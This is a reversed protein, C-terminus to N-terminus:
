IKLLFRPQSGTDSKIRMTIWAVLVFSFLGLMGLHFPYKDKAFDFQVLNEGPPIWIGKFAMNARIIGVPKNNLFAQWSKHFADNYVLFRWEPFHIRLKINNPTYELVEFGPQNQTMYEAKAMSSNVKGDPPTLITGLPVFAVNQHEAFVQEMRKIDLRKDDMPELQSYLIFKYRIYEDFIYANLSQSFHNYRTSAFYLSSSQVFPIKSLDGSPNDKLWVELMSSKEGRTFSFKRFLKDYITPTIEKSTNQSLYHYAELPQAVVLIFFALLWVAKKPERQQDKTLLLWIFFSLSLIIVFYSSFNFHDQKYLFYAAGLHIFALFALAMSKAKKESPKYDLLVRLQEVVYLIFLPLLIFWLFFHLNRFYKFFFIYKNLLKYVPAGYPICMIFIGLGWTALFVLRRNVPGAIGMLFILYIFIPIYFVAHQYNELNGLFYSSFWLDEMVSWHAVSQYNVGLVHSVEDKTSRMPLVIEKQSFEQYLKVVPISSLFLAIFCLCVFIKNNFFFVMFNSFIAKVKSLYFLSYTLIFSFLIILFYFPIYTTMILMLTFIMGLFFHRKQEQCFGILSYFFWVMPTFTFVLYSDFLRAGLSSFVLLLYALFALKEDQFIRSALLYFGLMGLFYYFTLFGLYAPLYPLGMKYALVLVLFFPNYEGFRHLFFQNPVGGEWNPDWLPYIGHAMSEIYFKIHEYYSVADSVLARQGGLFERFNWVWFLISLIFVFPLYGIKLYPVKEATLRDKNGSEILNSFITKILKM